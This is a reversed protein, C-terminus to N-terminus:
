MIIRCDMFVTWKLQINLKKKEFLTFIAVAQKVTVNLLNSKSKRYEYM